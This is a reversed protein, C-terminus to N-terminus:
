TRRAAPGATRQQGAIYAGHQHVRVVFTDIMQVACDHTAAVLEMIQDWIGAQPWRVFRNYCTTSPGHNELLDRWPASFAARSSLCCRSSAIWEYGGLEYRM